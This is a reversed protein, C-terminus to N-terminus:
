VLNRLIRLLVLSQPAETEVLRSSLAYAKSLVSEEQDSDCTCGLDLDFSGDEKCIKEGIHLIISGSPEPFWEHFKKLSVLINQYCRFVEDTSNSLAMGLFTNGNVVPHESNPRLGLARAM